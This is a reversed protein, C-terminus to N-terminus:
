DNGEANTPRAEGMFVRVIDRAQPIHPQWCLEPQDSSPEPGDAM